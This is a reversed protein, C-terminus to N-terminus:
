RGIEEVEKLFRKQGDEAGAGMRVEMEVRGGTEGGEV